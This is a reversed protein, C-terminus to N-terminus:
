ASVKSWKDSDFDRLYVLGEPVLLTRALAVAGDRTKAHHTSPHAYFDRQGDHAVVGIIYATFTADTCIILVDGRRTPM